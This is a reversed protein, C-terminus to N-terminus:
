SSAATLAKVGVLCRNLEPLFFFTTSTQQDPKTVVNLFVSDSQRRWSALTVSLRELKYGVVSHAMFRIFTPYSMRNSAHLGSPSLVKQIVPLLYFTM